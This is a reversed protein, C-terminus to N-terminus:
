IVFAVWVVVASMEVAVGTQIEVLEQFHVAVQVTEYVDSGAASVKDLQDESLVESPKKPLILNVTDASNQVIRLEAGDSVFKKGKVIAKNKIQEAIKALIDVAQASDEPLVVYRIKDTNEVVRYNKGEEVPFGSEALVKAPNAIFKAKYAEDDWCGNIIEAIILKKDKQTM